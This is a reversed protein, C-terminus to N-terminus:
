NDQIINTITAVVYWKGDKTTGMLYNDEVKLEEWVDKKEKYFVLNTLDELKNIEYERSKFGEVFSPIHEKVLYM